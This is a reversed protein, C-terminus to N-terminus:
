YSVATSFYLFEHQTSHDENLSFHPFNQKLTKMALHVLLSLSCCLATPDRLPTLVFSRSQPCCWPASLLRTAHSTNLGTQM